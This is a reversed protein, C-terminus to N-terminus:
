AVVSSGAVSALAFTTGGIGSAIAAAELASVWHESATVVATSSGTSHVVVAADSGV